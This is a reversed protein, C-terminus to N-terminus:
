EEYWFDHMQQATFPIGHKKLFANLKDPDFVSVGMAKIKPLATKLSVDVTYGDIDSCCIGADRMCGFTFGPNEGHGRLYSRIDYMCCTEGASPDYDRMLLYDDPAFLEDTKNIIEETLVTKGM